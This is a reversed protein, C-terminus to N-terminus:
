NEDIQIWNGVRKFHSGYFIAALLTFLIIKILISPQTYIFTWNEKAVYVHHEAFQNSVFWFFFGFMIEILASITSLMFTKTIFGRPDDRFKDLGFRLLGHIILYVATIIGDYQVFPILWYLFLFLLFSVFASYFQVPHLSVSYLHPKMRIVKADPNQYAISLKSTTPKGWCCGYTHCGIRGIAEGLAVALSCGDFLALMPINMITAYTVLTLMGILIGGQLNFGPTLILQMLSHRTLRFSKADLINEIISLLRVGIFITPLLIFLYFGLLLEVNYGVLLDYYLAISLGAFFGLGLFGGYTVFIYDGIKFLITKNHLDKFFHKIANWLQMALHEM